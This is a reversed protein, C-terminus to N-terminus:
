GDLLRRECGGFGMGWVAITHCIYLGYMYGDGVYASSVMEVLM